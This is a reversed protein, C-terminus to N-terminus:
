LKRFRCVVNESLEHYNSKRPLEMHIREHSRDIREHSRDIREHSRDILKSTVYTEFREASSSTM